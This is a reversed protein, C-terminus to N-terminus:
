IRIYKYLYKRAKDPKGSSRYALSLNYAIERSLDFIGVHESRTVSPQCELAKVYYEIAAQLLGLQHMARGINYFTEQCDGRCRLYADFFTSAQKVLSHKSSSFKQCTMQVLVVANLLLMLPNNPEIKCASMYENLSYKYTRAALCAHGNLVSICIHDPHKMLLRMLFRNHRLDDGRM